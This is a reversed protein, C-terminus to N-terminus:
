VNLYGPYWATNSLHRPDYTAEEPFGSMTAHTEPNSFEYSNDLTSYIGDSFGSPYQTPSDHHQFSAAFDMESFHSEPLMSDGFYNSIVSNPPGILEPTTVIDEEIEISEFPLLIGATPEEPPAPTTWEKSHLHMDLTLTEGHRTVKKMSGKIVSSRWAPFRGCGERIRDQLEQDISDFWEFLLLKIGTFAQITLTKDLFRIPRSVAERLGGRQIRTKFYNLEHRLITAAAYANSSMYTHNNNQPADVRSAGLVEEMLIQVRCLLLHKFEAEINYGNINNVGQFGNQSTDLRETVQVVSCLLHLYGGILASTSILQSKGEKAKIDASFRRALEDISSIASKNHLAFPGSFDKSFEIAPGDSPQVHLDLTSSCEGWEDFCSSHEHPSNEFLHKSLAALTDTRSFATYKSDEYRFYGIPYRARYYFSRTNKTETLLQYLTSLSGFGAWQVIKATLIM